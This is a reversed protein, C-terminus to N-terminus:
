ADATKEPASAARLRARRQEVLRLVARKYYYTAKRFEEDKEAVEAFYLEQKVSSPQERALGADRWPSKRAYDFYKQKYDALYWGHWPKNEGAFHLIKPTQIHAIARELGQIFRPQLRDFVLCNYELDLWQIWDPVIIENLAYQDQFLMKGGGAACALVKASVDLERWRRLNILMVGANFYGAQGTMQQGVSDPCVGVVKDSMPTAFLASLDGDVITDSDLYLATEVAAPLLRPILLRYFTSVPLTGGQLKGVEEGLEPPIPCVTISVQFAHSLQDFRHQDPPAVQDAIIFVGLALGPNNALLSYIAVGVYPMFAKDACYVVHHRAVLPAPPAAAVPQVSKRDWGGGPAAIGVPLTDDIKGWGDPNIAQPNFKGVDWLVGHARMRKLNVRYWYRAAEAESSQSDGFTEEKSVHWQHLLYTEDDLGSPQLGLWRARRQFAMDQFCWMRYEEDRGRLALLSQMWLWQCAGLATLESRPVSLAKLRELDRVVDTEATVAERPLDLIQCNLLADPRLRRLGCEIFNPALLMDADLFLVTEVPPLLRVGQNGAVALNWIEGQPLHRYIYHFPPDATEFAPCPTGFNVLAMAEPPRTQAALTRILNLVSRPDRNRFTVVVGVSRPM